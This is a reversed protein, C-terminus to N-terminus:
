NNWHAKAPLQPVPRQHALSSQKPMDLSSSQITNQRECARLRWRNKPQKWPSFEIMIKFVDVGTESLNWIDRRTLIILNLYRILHHPASHRSLNTPFNRLSTTMPHMRLFLGKQFRALKKDLVRGLIYYIPEIQRFASFVAMPLQLRCRAEGRAPQLPVWWSICQLFVESAM